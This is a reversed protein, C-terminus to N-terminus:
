REERNILDFVDIYRNWYYTDNWIQEEQEFGRYWVGCQYKPEETNVFMFKKGPLKMEDFRKLHEHTCYNQYSFKFILNDWNIRKVRRTWKDKAEKEDAYHLFIIEVDDLIGIPSPQEGKLQEYYKSKTVDIFQLELSMYYDLREVFRLYDEPFFYAGVTPSLKQMGFWEYCCGGWCNNSIITFDTNTLRNRYHSKLLSDWIEKLKHVIRERYTPRFM